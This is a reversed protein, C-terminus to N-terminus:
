DSRGPIARAVRAAWGCPSCAGRVRLSAAQLYRHQIVPSKASRKARFGWNDLVPVPKGTGTETAVCNYQHAHRANRRRNGGHPGVGAGPHPRRDIAGARRLPGDAPQGQRRERARDESCGGRPRAHWPRNGGACKRTGLPLIRHRSRKRSPDRAYDENWGTIPRLLAGVSDRARRRSVNAFKIVARREMIAHVKSGADKGMGTPPPMVPLPASGSATTATLLKRSNKRSESCRAMDRWFSAASPWVSCYTTLRSVSNERESASNSCVGSPGFSRGSAAIYESAWEAAGPSRLRRSWRMPSTDSKMAPNKACPKARLSTSM